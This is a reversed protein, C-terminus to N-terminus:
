TTSGSTEFAIANQLQSRQLRERGSGRRSAHSPWNSASTKTRVRRRPEELAQFSEVAMRTYHEDNGYSYRFVRNVDNSSCYDNGIGYRDLLLIKSDSAKIISYATSLGM